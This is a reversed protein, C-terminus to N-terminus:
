ESVGKAAQIFARVKAHDKRGPAAEVGSSVDVGFPKVRLVAAAVNEPTLGGALFIPRGCQRAELALDWNFQEGTGGPKDPSYSDLLWADTRYQKLASLSAADRIRFAKMSMLGFQLCFEPPEEGHFQLVNLGCEAIARFVVEPAANVFVGAKLILAPLHRIIDAAAEITVKRPSADYFVFGLADAGASIAALGDEVNTIGCIKVQVGM